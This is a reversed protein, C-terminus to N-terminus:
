VTGCVGRPRRRCGGRRWLHMCRWCPRYPGTKARRRRRTCPPSATLWSPQSRNCPPIAFMTTSFALADLWWPRCPVQLAGLSHAHAAFGANEQGRGGVVRGDVCVKGGAAALARIAAVQGARAAAHMATDGFNDAANVKKGAAILRQISALDGVEAAERLTKPAPGSASTAAAPLASATATSGGAVPHGIPHKSVIPLSHSLAAFATLAPKYLQASLLQQCCAQRARGSYGPGVPPVAPETTPAPVAARAPAAAASATFTPYAPAATVAAPAPADAARWAAATPTVPWTPVAQPQQRPGSAPGAAAPCHMHQPLSSVAPATAVPAPPAAPSWLPAASVQWPQGTLAPASPASPTPHAM